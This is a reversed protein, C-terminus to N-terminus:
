IVLSKSDYQIARNLTLTWLKRELLLSGVVVIIATASITARYENVFPICLWPSVDILCGIVSAWAVCLIAQVMYLHVLCPHHNVVSLIDLERKFQTKRIRVSYIIQISCATTTVFQHWRVYQLDSHLCIPSDTSRHGFEVFLRDIWWGFICCFMWPFVAEVFALYKRFFM